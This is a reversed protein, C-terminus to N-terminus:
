VVLDSFQYGFNHPGEQKYLEIAKRKIVIAKALSGLYRLNSTCLLGGISMAQLMAKLNSIDDLLRSVFLTLEPSQGLLAKATEVHKEQLAALDLLFAADQKAARKIMNLILDTVKIPSSSHSGMASVVVVKGQAPDKIVLEAAAKIREAAAMCTGGFKHVQWHTGRQFDGSAASTAAEAAVARVAVTRRNSVSRLPKLNRVVPAHKAVVNQQSVAADQASLSVNRPVSGLSQTPVVRNSVAPRQGVASKSLM